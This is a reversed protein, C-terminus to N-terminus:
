KFDKLNKKALIIEQFRLGIGRFKLLWRWIYTPTVVDALWM